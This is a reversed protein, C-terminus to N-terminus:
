VPAAPSTGPPQKAVGAQGEIANTLWARVQALHDEEQELARQFESALEDEGLKTALETLVLWGDNDTLEATLVAKLGETLTTRADAVVALLGASAVGVVDASPTVATPDGGMRAMAHELMAFHELEEDRIRQLAERTPGGEHVDAADLKVLLGEYLRVGTREFALREALLDLFVTPKEGKVVQAITKAAGKLSVPPPSTGLPEAENSYSSRLTELASTDFSPRPGLKKAGDVLDDAHASIAIGTRNRGMDIPTKPKM